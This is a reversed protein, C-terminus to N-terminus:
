IEYKKPTAMHLRQYTTMGWIKRHHTTTKTEERTKGISEQMSVKEKIRKKRRGRTNTQNKERGCGEKSVIGRYSPTQPIKTKTSNLEEDKTILTNQIAM